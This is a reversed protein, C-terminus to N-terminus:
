YKETYINKFGRQQLIDAIDTVIAPGGCIYFETDEPFEEASLNIRGPECWPVQERSVHIHYELNPIDHIRDLYFLDAKYSVSFYLKKPSYTANAMAILPVLWTGTGIFVKPNGTDQLFFHGFIGVVEISDGTTMNRLYSSWKGWELLKIALTFECGRDGSDYKVISYARKVQQGPDKYDLLVRQGPKYPMVQHTKIMIELVDYTIM